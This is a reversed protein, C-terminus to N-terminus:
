FSIILVYKGLHSKEIKELFIEYVENYRKFLELFDKPINKLWIEKITQDIKNKIEENVLPKEELIFM